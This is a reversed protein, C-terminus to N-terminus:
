QHHKLRSVQFELKDFQEQTQRLLQRAVKIDDHITDPTMEENVAAAELSSSQFPQKKFVQGETASKPLHLLSTMKRQNSCCTVICTLHEGLVNSQKARIKKRFLIDWLTGILLLGALVGLSIYM